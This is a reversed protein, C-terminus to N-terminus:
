GWVPSISVAIIEKEGHNQKEMEGSKFVSVFLRFELGRKLLLITANV